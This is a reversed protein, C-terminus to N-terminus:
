AGPPELMDANRMQRNLTASDVDLTSLLHTIFIDEGDRDAM